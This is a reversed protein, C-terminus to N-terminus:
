QANSGFYTRNTIVSTVVDFDGGCHDEVHHIVFIMRKCEEPLLYPYM